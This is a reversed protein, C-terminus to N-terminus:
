SCCREQPFRFLGCKRCRKQRLGARLQVRAWEVNQLYGLPPLDGAKFFPMDLLCILSIKATKRIRYRKRKM